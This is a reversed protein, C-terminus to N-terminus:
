TGQAKKRSQLGNLKALLARSDADDKTRSLHDQLWQIADHVRELALLSVAMNYRLGAFDADLEYARRFALSPFLEERYRYRAFAGPKRVLSWIVHRHLASLILPTVVNWGPGAHRRGFSSVSM